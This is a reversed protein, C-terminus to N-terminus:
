ESYTVDKLNNSTGSSRSSWATGNTSTLITGNNGVVIHLNNGFDVEYLDESIGSNKETWSTGNNSTFIVGKQGVSVFLDNGYNVGLFESNTDRSRRQIENSGDFSSILNIVSM